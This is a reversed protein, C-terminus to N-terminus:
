VSVGLSVENCETAIHKNTQMLQSTSNIATGYPKEKNLYLWTPVQRVLDRDGEFCITEQKLASKLHTYGIWVHTFASLDASILVDVRFGPDKQCVDVERDEIVVWWSRQTKRGKTLGRFDFQLVIKQKPVAELNIERKMAWMLLADDLDESIIHGGGWQQAWASMAEIIPRMAEGAPTLVYEHGQGTEKEYSVVVGAKELEKLRQALLARSMLPVGRSIDNFYRSGYLMERLVLPNWRDGIVEAAKAVPCFQGYGKRM